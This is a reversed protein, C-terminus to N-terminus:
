EKSVRLIEEITTMGKLVKQIGDEIMTIMGQELAKQKIRAANAQDMVLEKIENTMELIEFIGKRGKFGTDQCEACGKGHYLTLSSSDLAYTKILSAPLQKKIIAIQEDTVTGSTKCKECIIRVLRQAIALNITSAVLFPQVGMDMLRPLTTAADNTHLTSLVLHGTMASNVAIKATEEDRIEGVMIINPDQRVIARLGAEFTLNTKPNVQIQNVRDMDYEVPDEITSINVERTNLKKIIAYLTTTKGSGTPGTALIMGWPKEINTKIKEFDEPRFGLNELDHQRSKESLLRLVVKEGNIVPVISVRVDVNEDGFAFKLKGDQAARHEDTRLRSLIKLRTIILTHLYKPIVIIDHLMGDIRFRILTQKEYPEIHIDSSKNAYGLELLKDVIKIIPLDEARAILDEGQIIDNILKAFDQSDTSHLSQLVRHISDADAFYLIVQDDLRKTIAKLCEDDTPNDTAVHFGKKDRMFVVATNNHSVIEPLLQVIAPDITIASLDVYQVKLSKAILQNLHEKEVGGEELVLSYLDSQTEEVTKMLEVLKKKKVIDHELLIDGLAHPSLPM